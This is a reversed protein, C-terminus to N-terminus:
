LSWSTIIFSLFLCSEMEMQKRVQLVFFGDEALLSECCGFFQEMYEHAVHEIM